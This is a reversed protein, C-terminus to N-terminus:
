RTTTVVARRRGDSRLTRGVVEKRSRGRVPLRFGAALAIQLVLLPADWATPHRAIRPDSRGSVAALAVRCRKEAGVHACMLGLAVRWGAQLGLLDALRRTLTLGGPHYSERLLVAAADNGYTTACCAKVATPDVGTM